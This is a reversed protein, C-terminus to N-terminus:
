QPTPNEVRLRFYGDSFFEEITVSSGHAWPKCIFLTHRPPLLPAMAMRLADAGDRINDAYLPSFRPTQPTIKPTIQEQERECNLCTTGYLIQGHKCEFPM